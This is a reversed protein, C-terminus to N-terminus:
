NILELILEAEQLANHPDIVFSGESNMVYEPFSSEAEKASAGALAGALSSIIGLISAANIQQGSNADVTQAKGTQMKSFLDLIKPSQILSTLAGLIQALGANAGAPPTAAAPQAPPQSAPAQAAPSKPQDKKFLSSVANIAQPALQIITPLAAALAPWFEEMRGELYDVAESENMRSTDRNIENTLRALSLDDDLFSLDDELPLEDLDIAEDDSDSDSFPDDDLFEMSERDLLEDLEDETDVPFDDEEFFISENAM